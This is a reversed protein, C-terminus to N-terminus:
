RNMVDAITFVASGDGRKIQDLMRIPAKPAPCNGSNVYLINPEGTIIHRAMGAQDVTEKERLPCEETSITFKGFSARDVTEYHNTAWQKQFSAPDYATYFLLFITPASERNTVVINQYNPALENVKKVMAQYGEHRFWPRHVLQHVFYNHLYFALSAGLIGITVLQGFELSKKIISWFDIVGIACIITIAPLVILTRQLNPIDDFTLASGVLGTAWWVILFFDERKRRICIRFLGFVLFPLQVLYLLGSGPVRYRDPLGRDTFYFDYTLHLFYNHIFQSTYASVKNHFFRSALRPMDRVGDERLQEDIVLQTEQVNFISLTRLRLSLQPSFIFVLVPFIILIVFLTLVLRLKPRVSRYYLFGLGLLLLPIFARPAQYFLFTLSFLAFASLILITKKQSLWTYFFLLGVLLLFCVITNETATRSLTIHWPTIALLFASLLAVEENKKDLAFMRKVLQYLAYITAIAFLASPLRVSFANLKWFFIAPIVAYTYGAPSYLFSELHLPLFHGTMDRGTKFISYANYGLFAEDRHLGVPVEGLNYLRLASGLILIALLVIKKKNM